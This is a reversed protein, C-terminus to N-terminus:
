PPSAAGGTLHRWYQAPNELVGKTIRYHSIDELRVSALPAVDFSVIDAGPYTLLIPSHTAVVFQTEGGAVMEAMRALLALQRQPSLAAEPEDMLILGSTMRHILVALFAEGHSREHLSQGGYRRYPDGGFDPDERRLDLLSALHAQFEARFFYRDMPRARFAPRLAAGLASRGEPAYADPLENTGGGAVPMGCATAIAEILTSKGSGNEGVFFTVASRLELALGRVFPLTFPWTPPGAAARPDASVRVLFPATSPAVMLTEPGDYGLPM